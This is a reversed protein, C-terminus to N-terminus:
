NEKEIVNYYMTGDPLKINPVWMQKGNWGKTGTVQYMTLVVKDMFSAGLQWDNPSLLAGTGQAVNRGRRAILIGQATPQEALITDLISQFAQLKFDPSPIIHTLTEKIFRLSVQYYPETDSFPELLKSLEETSDNDPYFPYYNTGGSIIEVHDNDLVNKRTPNLGNPYYLKIDDIGREIQAIISNNTANIDAFLKYLNEEIFIMMMGPDRDYGFMRSHQWMTDAQPKKSTRTYYITQLGPFTVGRGLTNGGVIFNCGESYDSSDIDSKGNMVLIKIHNESLLGAAVSYITDYSLKETKTPNFSNYRVKLEAKFDGNLNERCWSLEKSIEDAYRKHAAVRVSPHFLCNSIRGGSALIQATVALHRIVVNRTPEKMTGLFSICDPVKSVPFFFDGGLYADGPQFYYTFYPHWGSAITQLFIAQPTGTVQLYLSSSARNKIIDLYKNISSQRDRNVLTNLSAADAEDDIVFLPNGKMFGTSNLINAWLKLIRVNKKLVIIAPEILSNDTFLRADNEGCICFGDLDSKVRELTQQQLVVNDTTLLIFVPFGLDAAKCVIGFMQGTKGSQVNGFLLGIEHSTFSFNKIHKNGVDDATKSISEALKVNGRDTINKLYTKLYQMANM